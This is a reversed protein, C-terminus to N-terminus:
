PKAELFDEPTCIIPPNFGKANCVTEIVPRLVVNTLHQCNWTLLYPVGMTAAIAIHLADGAAKAPLAGVQLLKNPRSKPPRDIECTNVCRRM